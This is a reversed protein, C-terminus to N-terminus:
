SSKRRAKKQEKAERATKLHEGIQRSSKFPFLFSVKERAEEQAKRVNAKLAEYRVIVDNEVAYERIKVLLHSSYVVDILFVGFFMGIVFSFALNEALWDIANLIYPHVLFYYAAGCAAWTVSFKPCIIGMINGWEDSYDWLRVNSVRLLLIGALFELVTMAVGMLVIVLVTGWASDSVFRQNLSALLYMACLGFGYLPLYPGVCFGPNIWKREPNKSSFFRRFILEIVWGLVAGIFFLYALKLFLSM